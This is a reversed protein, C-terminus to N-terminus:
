RKEDVVSTRCVLVDAVKKINRKFHEVSAANKLNKPLNNWLMAGSYSFSRKLYNTSPKSLTLRGESNRLGYASHRQSFLSQLYEPALDNMTKYMMLAKQKNYLCQTKSVAFEGFLFLREKILLLRM